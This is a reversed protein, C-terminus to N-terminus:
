VPLGQGVKRTFYETVFEVAWSPADDLTGDMIRTMLDSLHHFHQLTTLRNRFMAAAKPAEDDIRDLIGAIEHKFGDIGYYKLFGHWADTIGTVQPLPESLSALMKLAHPLNKESVRLLRDSRIEYPIIRLSSVGETTLGARVLYGIKRYLLDTPQFFVFNGLSYCIPVGHHIQVGQPVHPHHGIVLDAGAEAIRQLVDALYPPPFPIYEVGGHCIVIIVHVRSRIERIREIVRDIEWGLVGPSETSAATLDEGESFNIIAIVVGNVSTMLPKEAEAISMGAGTSQIGHQQLLNRTQVFADIGYDFVHNNALTAVEFPVTALGNIHGSVGKLVAGSKHVPTGKDVLPCELNVVRLHCDRLVPLLDGYISEPKELITESFDRIPAWDGAIMVDAVSPGAGSAHWSGHEWNIQDNGKRIDTM